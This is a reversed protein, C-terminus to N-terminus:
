LATRRKLIVRWLKLFGELTRQTRWVVRADGLLAAVAAKAEESTEAVDIPIALEEIRAWQYKEAMRRARKQKALRELWRAIDGASV